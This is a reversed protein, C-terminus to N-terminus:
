GRAKPQSSVAGPRHRTPTPVPRTPVTRRLSGSSGEGDPAPGAGEGPDNSRINTVDIDNRLALTINCRATAHKVLEANAPELALTVSPRPRRRRSREDARVAEAIRDNVALVRVATLLTRVETPKARCVAIVDVYNGPNLFGSVAASDKVDVQLARQGPPIIAPLGIGAEPDALREERIFEGPLVREKVVRGLVEKPTRYVEDPVYAPPLDLQQLHEATITFGPAVSTAAVVVEETKAPGQPKQVQQQADQIVSYIMFTAGVAVILSLVLFAAGRSRGGGAM